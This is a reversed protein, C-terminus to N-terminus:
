FSNLVILVKEEGTRDVKYLTGAKLPTSDSTLEATESWDGTYSGPANDCVYVYEDVFDMIYGNISGPEAAPVNVVRNFPQPVAAYELFQTTENWADAVVTLKQTGDHKLALEGIGSRNWEDEANRALQGSGVEFAATYNAPVLYEIMDKYPLLALFVITSVILVIRAKSEGANGSIATRKVLKCAYMFFIGGLYQTIYRDFEMLGHAEWEDFVFLYMCIHAIAFVVLGVMSCIFMNDLIVTRKSEKTDSSSAAPIFESSSRTTIHVLIVFVVLVFATVGITNRTLPYTFFHRIYNIIGEGTYSPITSPGGLVSDNVRNSLYGNNGSHRLFLQWSFYAGFTFAAAVVIKGMTILQSKGAKKRSEAFERVALMIVALIGLVIGSSKILALFSLGTVIAIMRFWESQKDPAEYIFVYYLVYGFVLALFLDVGLRYYFQATLIHPFILYLMVAMIKTYRSTRDKIVPEGNGKHYSDSNKYGGFVEGFMPLLMIYIFSVN